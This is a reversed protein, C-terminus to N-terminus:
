KWGWAESTTTPQAAGTPDVLFGQGRGRTTNVDGFRRGRHVIVGSPRGKVRPVLYTTATTGSRDRAAFSIRHGWRLRQVSLISGGGPRATAIEKLLRGLVFTKAGPELHARQLTRAAKHPSVNKVLVERGGYAPAAAFAIGLLLPLLRHVRM